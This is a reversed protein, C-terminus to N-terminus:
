LDISILDQAFQSALKTQLCVSKFRWRAYLIFNLDVFLQVNGILNIHGDIEALQDAIKQQIELEYEYLKEMEYMSAFVDSALTKQILLLLLIVFKM